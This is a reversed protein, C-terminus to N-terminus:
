RCYVEGLWSLPKGEEEKDHNPSACLNQDKAKRWGAQM